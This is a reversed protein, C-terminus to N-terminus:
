TCLPAWPGCTLEPPTMTEQPASVRSWRAACSSSPPLTVQVPCQAPWLPLRPFPLPLVPLSLAKGPTGIGLTKASSFHKSLGLDIIRLRGTAAEIMANEPKLDRHCLGHSHLYQVAELLQQFLSRARAEPLRGSPQRNLVQAPCACGDGYRPLLEAGDPRLSAELLDWGKIFELVLVLASPPELFWDCVSVISPHRVTSGHRVEAELRSRLKEDARSM